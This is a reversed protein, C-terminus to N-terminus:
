PLPRRSALNAFPIQAELVKIIARDYYIVMPNLRKGIDCRTKVRGQSAGSACYGRSADSNSQFTRMM